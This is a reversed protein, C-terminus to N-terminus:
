STYTPYAARIPRIAGKRRLPELEPLERMVDFSLGDVMIFAVRRALAPTPPRTSPIDTADGLPTEHTNFSPLFLAQIHLGVGVMTTVAFAIALWKTKGALM